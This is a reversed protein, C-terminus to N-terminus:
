DLCGGHGAVDAAQQIADNPELALGLHAGIAETGVHPHLSKRDGPLGSQAFWISCALNLLGHVDQEPAGRGVGHGTEIGQHGGAMSQHPHHALRIPAAAPTFLQLGARHFGAGQLQANRHESRLANPPIQVALGLQPLQRCINIHHHSETLDQRRRHESLRGIAAPIAVTRQQGAPPAGSRDLPAQDLSIALSAHADHGHLLAQVRARHQQLLGDGDAQAVVGLLQGVAQGAEGAAQQYLGHRQDFSGSWPGLGFPQRAQPYPGLALLPDGVGAHEM